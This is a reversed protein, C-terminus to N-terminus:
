GSKVMRDYLTIYVAAGLNVCHLTPIRVFRHCLGLVARPLTGDEPGFVYAANKPHHFQPLQEAGPVIEVAVPVVGKPLLDFPKEVRSWAVDRFARMREERPLRKARHSSVDVRTGTFYVQSVGFCSAARVAAGVNHDFKPDILILHTM